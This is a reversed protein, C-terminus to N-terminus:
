EQEAVAEDAWRAIHDVIYRYVVASDGEPPDHVPVSLGPEVQEFPSEGMESPQGHADALRHIHVGLMPLKLQRARKIEYLVRPRSSTHAGILVVM